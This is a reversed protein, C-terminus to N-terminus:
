SVDHGRTRVIGAAVLTLAYGAVIVAGAEGRSPTVSFSRPMLKSRSVAARRSPSGSVQHYVYRTRRAMLYNRDLL